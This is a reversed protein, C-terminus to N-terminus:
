FHSQRKWHAISVALEWQRAFHLAVVKCQAAEIGAQFSGGCIGSVREDLTAIAVHNLPEADWNFKRLLPWLCLHVWEQGIRWECIVKM